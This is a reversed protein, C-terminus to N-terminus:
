PDLRQLPCVISIIAGPLPNGIPTLRDPNIKPWGELFPKDEWEIIRDSEELYMKQKKGYEENIRRLRPDIIFYM